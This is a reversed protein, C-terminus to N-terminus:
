LEKDEKTLFQQAQTNNSILLKYHQSQHSCNVSIPINQKSAIHEEFSIFLYDFIAVVLKRFPGDNYM